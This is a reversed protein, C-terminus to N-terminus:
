PLPLITPASASAATAPHRDYSVQTVRLAFVPLFLLALVWRIQNSPRLTLARDEKAKLKDFKDLLAQMELLLDRATDAGPQRPELRPFEVPFQPIRAEGVQQQPRWLDENQGIFHQLKRDEHGLDMLSVCYRYWQALSDTSNGPGMLETTARAGDRMRVYDAELQARALYLTVEESSRVVEVVAVLLGFVAIGLWAYEVLAWFSAGFLGRRSWRFVAWHAVGLLVVTTVVFPILLSPM